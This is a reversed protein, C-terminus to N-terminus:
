ALESGDDIFEATLASRGYVLQSLSTALPLHRLMEVFFSDDFRRLRGALLALGQGRTLAMYDMGAQMVLGSHRRASRVAVAQGPREAILADSVWTTALYEGPTHMPISDSRKILLMGNPTPVGFSVPEDILGILVSFWACVTEVAPGLEALVAGQDVVKLRYFLRQLAHNGVVLLCWRQPARWTPRGYTVLLELRRVEDSAGWHVVAFGARKDSGNQNGHSGEIVKHAPPVLGLSRERLVRYAQARRVPMRSVGRAGPKPRTDDQYRQEQERWESILRSVLGRALSVSTSFALFEDHEPRPSIFMEEPANNMTM